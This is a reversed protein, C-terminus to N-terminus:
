PLSEARWATVSCAATDAVALLTASGDEWAAVGTPLTFAGADALAGLPMGQADLLVVQQRAPDSLFLHDGLAALHPGNITDTPQIATYSGLTDLRWLRGQEASIAWIAHGPAVVDTPQGRGLASDAGGYETILSGDQGLVFVRAGGTDAVYLQGLPDVALGRPRYTGEPLALVSQESTTPDWVVIRPQTADLVYLTGDPGVAVDVPEQLDHIPLATMTQDDLAIATVRQNGLDAVYLVNRGPDVALGHPSNLYGESAGCSGASWERAFPLAMLHDPAYRVQPQWLTPDASLAFFSNGLRADDLNLDPLPTDAPGLEVPSPSLMAAPLATPASGPPQWYLRMDPPGSSAAGAAAPDGTSFRIEIPHWGRELYLLGESPAVSAATVADGGQPDARTAVIKGDVSVTAPGSSVAGILYEGSRPAALHGQWVVSWPPQLSTDAQIAPDQRLTFVPGSWDASKMYAGVLGQVPLPPNFLVERPIPSAEEGAQQWLLAFDGPTEGSHYQVALRHTGAPLMEGRTQLGASSDLLLRDDLTVSFRATPLASVSFTYNGADRVLLSGQWEAGFPLEMPPSEGWAFSMPGVGTTVDANEGSAGDDGAFLRQEVGLSQALTQADVRWLNLIDRGEADRVKVGSGGPYVARVADLLAPSTTPLLYAIGDPADGSWPLDEIWDFPLLRGSSLLKSGALRVAPASLLDAPAFLLPGSDGSEEVVGALFQALAQADPNEARSVTRAARHSLDWAGFMGIAVLAVTAWATLVGPRALPRWARQTARLLQDLALAAFTVGWIGLLSGLAPANTATAPLAITMLAAGAATLLLLLGGRGLRAPVGIGMITLAALWVPVVALAAAVFPAVQATILEGTGAPLGPLAAAASVGSTWPSLVGVVTTAAAVWLGAPRRRGDPHSLTLVVLLVLWAAWVGTWGPAAHFLLGLTLGAVAWAAPRGSQLGSTSGWLAMAILLTLEIVSGAGRTAALHWPHFALLAAGLLVGGSSAFRRLLLVFVLLTLSSLLATGYRLATLADVAAFKALSLLVGLAPTAGNGLVTDCEQAVCSEPMAHALWFRLAVGVALIVVLAAWWLRGTALEEPADQVPVRVLEGRASRSWRWAPAAYREIPGRVLVGALAVATGAAWVAGTASLTSQVQFGLFAAGEGLLAGAVATIVGAVFLARGAIPWAREDWDRRAAPLAWWGAILAAALAILGGDRVRSALGVTAAAGAAAGDGAAPASGLIMSAAVWGAIAAVVLLVLRRM